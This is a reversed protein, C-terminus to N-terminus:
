SNKENGNWEYSYVELLKQAAEGDIVIQYEHLIGIHYADFVKVYHNVLEQNAAFGYVVGEYGWQISKDIAIAFLHGGVGEYKQNGYEYKNNHNGRNCYGEFM